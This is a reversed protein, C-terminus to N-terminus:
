ESAAGAAGQGEQHATINNNKKTDRDFWLVEQQPASDTVKKHSLLPEDREVTEGTGQFHISVLSQAASLIKGRRTGVTSSGVFCQSQFFGDM